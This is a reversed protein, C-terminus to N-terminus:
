GEFFEAALRHIPDSRGGGEILELTRLKGLANNFGGGVAAYGTEEALAAKDLGDEGADWLAQLILKEAKGLKGPGSLNLWYDLMEKGGSPVGDAEFGSPPEYGEPVALLRIPEGASIIGASRLKGLANNFGGGGIAYTTQLAVQRKTREGGHAMLVAIIKREALGLKADTEVIPAEIPASPTRPAPAQSRRSPSKPASETRRSTGSAPRTTGGPLGRAATSAQHAFQLSPGLVEQLSENASRLAGDLMDILELLAPPVVEVEVVKEVVTPTTSDNSAAALERELQKIRATLKKPDSAEAKQVTEAMEEQLKSLDIDALRASPRGKGLEPTAGSDFTRRQHFRFKEVKKLWYPSWLWAEGDELTPLGDVIDEGLAHHQVWGEIAKRDQPSTTRLPILNDLQTLVDKNIVASRQSIVTMGIGRNRGQKILKSWAGVLPSM